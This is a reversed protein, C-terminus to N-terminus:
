VLYPCLASHGYAYSIHQMHLLSLHAQVPIM